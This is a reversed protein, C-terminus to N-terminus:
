TARVVTIDHYPIKNVLDQLQEYFSDTEDDDHNNSPAYCQIITVKAHSTVFIATILRENVPTWETLASNADKDLIVTVGGRHIDYQRGPFLITKNGLKFSGSDTWRVENFSPINIKYKEM